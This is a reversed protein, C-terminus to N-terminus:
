SHRLAAYPRLKRFAYNRLALLYALREQSEQRPDFGERWPRTGSPVGTQAQEILNPQHWPGQYNTPVTSSPVIFDPFEGRCQAISTGNNRQPRGNPPAVGSAM